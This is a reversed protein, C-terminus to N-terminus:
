KAIAESVEKLIQEGGLKNWDTVYKDFSDVENQMIIKIFTEMRMKSLTSKKETMTPTDVGLYAPTFTRGEARIKTLVSYSGFDPNQWIWTAWNWMNDNGPVDGLYKQIQEIMDAVWPNEKTKYDTNRNKYWEAIRENGYANSVTGSKIIAYQWVLMKEKKDGEGYERQQYTQDYDPSQISLTKANLNLIKIAAEPNKCKKNVVIYSTASGPLVIKAPKGDVTPIEIPRWDAKLNKSKLSPVPWFFQFWHEAYVLGLKESVALEAIKNSDRTAFERDLLGNKYMEALKALAAKTQPQTSGEFLNNSDDKLFINEMNAAFSYSGFGMFFGQLGGAAENITKTCAATLGLTDKKGNKDPDKNVFADAVAVLEDITKPAKLGVNQLWDSRVWLLPASDLNERIVPIAYLKGDISCQNLAVKKDDEDFAKRILPSAYKNYVDTLDAAMNNDVMLKFQTDSVESIDPLDNSAIQINVKTDSQTKPVSWIFNIKIGLDEQYKKTWVNNNMDQDKPYKLNEDLIKFSTLEIGPEYKGFPDLKEVPAVTATVTTIAKSDTTGTQEKTGCAMLSLVISLVILISVFKGLYMKKM